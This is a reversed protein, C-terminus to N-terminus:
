RLDIPYDSKEDSVEVEVRSSSVNRFRVPVGDQKSTGTVAVRHTGPVAGDGQKYTTLEFGGDPGITGHAERGGSDPEFVIEGRTLPKGKYTVKGKVPVTSGIFAGTSSGCGACASLVLASALLSIAGRFM